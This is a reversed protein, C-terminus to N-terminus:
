DFDKFERRRKKQNGRKDAEVQRLHRRRKGHTMRLGYEMTWGVINRNRISTQTIALHPLHRCSHCNAVRQRHRLASFSSCSKWLSVSFSPLLSPFLVCLRFDQLKNEEEQLNILNTNVLSIKETYFNTLPPPFCCRSTETSACWCNANTYVSTLSLEVENRHNTSQRHRCLKDNSKHKSKKQQSSSFFKFM